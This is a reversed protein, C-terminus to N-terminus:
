RKAKRYVVRPNVDDRPTKHRFDGTTRRRHLAAEIHQDDLSGYASMADLEEPSFESLKFTAFFELLAFPPKRAHSIRSIPVYYVYAAHMDSMLKLVRLHKEELRGGRGDYLPQDLVRGFMPETIEDANAFAFVVFDGPEVYVLGGGPTWGPNPLRYRFKRIFRKM